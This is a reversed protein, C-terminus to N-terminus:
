YKKRIKEFNLNQIKQIKCFRAGSLEHELIVSEMDVARGPTNAHEM